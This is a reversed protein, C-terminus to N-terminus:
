GVTGAVLRWFGCDTIDNCLLFTRPLIRVYVANAVFIVNIVINYKYNHNEM